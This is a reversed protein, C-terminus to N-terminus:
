AARRARRVPTLRRAPRAREVFKWLDDPREHQPHHGMESWVAIQADPFAYRLAHRHSVPVLRDNEGWVAFVPGAYAIRRRPSSELARGAEVVARTGERAGNVLRPGRDLIRQVTDRSPDHHDAVMAKYGATVMKRSSLAVPMAAQALNRLVPISIAEALPIRGFGAPALLILAQVGAPRMEALATAVAGGLSHGVLTFRKIGLADLGEAVDRAYGAISGREPADSNGFGALDFAVRRGSLRSCLGDWGEASDLLGHLFVLTDRGDGPWQRVGMARGDGLVMTFEEAVPALAATEDGTAEADGRSVPERVAAQARPRFVPERTGRGLATVAM